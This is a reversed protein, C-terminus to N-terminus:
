QTDRRHSSVVRDRRARPPPAVSPFTALTSVGTYFRVVLTFDALTFTALASIALTFLQGDAFDRDCSLLVPSVVLILPAVADAPTNLRSRIM